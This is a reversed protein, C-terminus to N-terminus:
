AAGKPDLQEDLYALWEEQEPPLEATMSDPHDAPPEAQLVRTTGCLSCWLWPGIVQGNRLTEAPDVDWAHNHRGTLDFWIRRFRNM